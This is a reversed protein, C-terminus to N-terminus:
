WYYHIRCQWRNYPSENTTVAVHFLRKEGKQVRDKPRPVVAKIAESRTGEKRSAQRGGSNEKSRSPNVRGAESAADTDRFMPESGGDWEANQHAAITARMHVIAMNIANYTAVFSCVAVAILFITSGRSM